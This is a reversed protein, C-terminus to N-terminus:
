RQLGWGETKQEAVETSVGKVIEDLGMLNFVM